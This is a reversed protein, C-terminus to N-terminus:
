RAASPSTASRMCRSGAPRYLDPALGAGHAPSQSLRRTGAHDRPGDLAPGVERLFRVLHLPRPRGERGRPFGEAPGADAVAAPPQPDGQRLTDQAVAAADGAPGRRDLVDPDQELRHRAQRDRSRLGRLVLSLRGPGAGRGPHLFEASRRFLGAHGDDSFKPDTSIRLVYQAEDEIVPLWTFRPPNEVIQTDADPAYQITLRGTKPEDLMPATTGSM